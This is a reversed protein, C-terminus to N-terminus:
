HWVPADADNSRDHAVIVCFTFQETQWSALHRFVVTPTVAPQVGGPIGVCRGARVAVPSMADQLVRHRLVGWCRQLRLHTLRAGETAIDGLEARFTVPLSRRRRHAVEAGLLVDDLVVGLADVASPQQGAAQRQRRRARITMGCVLFERRAIGFGRDALVVDDGCAPPAVVADIFFVLGAHVGLCRVRAILLPADAAHGLQRVAIVAMRRVGDNPRVRRITLQSDHLLTAFAVFVDGFGVKVGVV